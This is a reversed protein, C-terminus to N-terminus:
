SDNMGGAFRISALQEGADGRIAVENARAVCARAEDPTAHAFPCACLEIFHADDDSREVMRWRGSGRLQLPEIVIM